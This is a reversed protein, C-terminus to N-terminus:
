GLNKRKTINMFTQYEGSTPSESPKITHSTTAWHVKSLNNSGRHGHIYLDNTCSPLPFRVDNEKTTDKVNKFYEPVYVYERFKGEQDTKYKEDLKIYNQYMANDAEKSAEEWQDLYMSPRLAM